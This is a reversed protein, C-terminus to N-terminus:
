RQIHVSVGGDDSPCDSSNDDYQEHEDSISDDEWIEDTIDEVQSAKHHEYTRGSLCRQGRTLYYCKYVKGDDYWEDDDLCHCRQDYTLYVEEYGEEDGTEDGGDYEIALKDLVANWEKLLGYRRAYQVPRKGYDDALDPDCGARLFLSLKRLVAKSIDWSFEWRVRRDLYPMLILHLPGRGYEDRAAINAGNKILAQLWNRCQYPVRAALLLPTDGWRTSQYEIDRGLNLFYKCLNEAIEITSKKMGYFSPIHFLSRMSLLNHSDEMSINDHICLESLNIWPALSQQWQRGIRRNQAIKVYGTWIAELIDHCNRGYM